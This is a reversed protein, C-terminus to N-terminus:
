RVVLGAHTARPKGAVDQLVVRYEGPFLLFRALEAGPEHVFQDSPIADAGEASRFAQALVREDSPLKAALEPPLAVSTRGRALWGPRGHVPPTRPHFVQLDMRGAYRGVVLPAGDAGRLVKPGDLLGRAEARRWHPDEFEPASRPMATTQDITLPDYGTLDALRAAMWASEAPGGRDRWDETAHDYGVYVFLRAEPAVDFVREVLNRAQGIERRRMRAGVDEGPVYPGTAEYPVLRYGLALAGRVLEGFVPEATYYGTSAGPYGRASTADVEMFTEAAFTDFGAARLARALELAFARHRPAHHSENLIVIRRDKAAAVIAALADEAVAQDVPSSALTPLREGHLEDFTEATEQELGVFSRALGFMDLLMSRSEAGGEGEELAVMEHEAADLAALYRGARVHADIAAGPFAPPPTQSFLALVTALLVSRSNTTM